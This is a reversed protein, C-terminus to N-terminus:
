LRKAGMIEDIEEYTASYTKIDLDSYVSRIGWYHGLDVLGFSPVKNKKLWKTWAEVKKKIEESYYLDYDIDFYLHRQADFINWRKILLDTRYNDKKLGLAIQFKFSKKVSRTM